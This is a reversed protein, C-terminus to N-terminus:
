PWYLTCGGNAKVDKGYLELAKNAVQSYSYDYATPVISIVWTFSGGSTYGGTYEGKGAYSVVHVYSQHTVTDYVYGDRGGSFRYKASRYLSAYSVIQQIGQVVQVAVGIASLVSVTTSASLSLWSSVLSLATSAAFGKWDASIKTYANRTGTVKVTFNKLLIPSYMSDQLYVAGTQVPFNSKLNALMQAESTFGMARAPMPEATSLQSFEEGEESFNASDDIMEVCDYDELANWNGEECLTDIEELLEDSIQFYSGNRFDSIVRTEVTSSYFYADSESNYVALETLGAMNYALTVENAGSKYQVYLIEGNYSVETIVDCDYLYEKLQEAKYIDYGNEDTYEKECLQLIQTASIKTADTSGPVQLVYKENNQLERATAERERSKDFYLYGDKEYYDSESGPTALVIPFVTQLLAVVLLFALTRRLNTKLM